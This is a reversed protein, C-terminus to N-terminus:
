VDNNSISPTYELSTHKTSRDFPQCGGFFAIRSDDIVTFSSSLPCKNPGQLPISRAEMGLVKPAKSTKSTDEYLIEVKFPPNGNLFYLANGVIPISHSSFRLSPPHPELDSVDVV